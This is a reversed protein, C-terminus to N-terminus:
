TAADDRLRVATLRGIKKLRSPLGPYERDEPSYLGKKSAPSALHEECM